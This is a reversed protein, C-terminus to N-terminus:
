IKIFLIIDFNKTFDIGTALNPNALIYISGFSNEGPAFQALDTITYFISHYTTLRQKYEVYPLNIVTNTSQQVLTVMWKSGQNDEPSDAFQWEPVPGAIRLVTSTTDWSFGQYPFPYLGIPHPPFITAEVQVTVTDFSYTGKNDTVRLVCRYIGLGLNAVETQKASANRVTFSSSRTIVSWQYETIYGDPDLSASGNLMVSDTPLILLTDKGANAVPWKDGEGLICCANEKKCSAIAVTALMFLFVFRIPGPKM